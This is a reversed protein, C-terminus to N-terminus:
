LSTIDSSSSYKVQALSIENDTIDYVVYASRLFNDGLIFPGSGGNLIGLGCQGSSSGDNYYLEIVIDSYPVNISVGSFNYTLSGSLNCDVIYTGISSSYSGGLASGIASVLGSPLYALTTGSDLVVQSNASHTSGGITISNLEVALYANGQIPLATLSGEYKDHDVGGFLLLGSSAEPSNLYLSYANKSIYGQDVLSIPLNNYQQSGAEQATKAIGLVGFDSGATTADAFQQNSVTISGIQVSDLYYEGQAGSGDEYQISFSEGTDQANSTLSYTGQSKCNANDQCQANADVVWLDSSGTDLLVTVPSSGVTLDVAYYSQENILTTPQYDRKNGDKSVLFYPKDSFKTVNKKDGYSHQFPLQVVGNSKRVSVGQVLLALVLSVLVKPLFM